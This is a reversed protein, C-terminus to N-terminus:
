KIPISSPPVEVSESVGGVELRFDGASLRESSSLALGTKEARKFGQLDVAVDYVGPQVSAFVFEGDVDTTFTRTERTDPKTLTVTAGPVAEGQGDLVRGVITGSSSPAGAAGVSTVLLVVAYVARLMTAM